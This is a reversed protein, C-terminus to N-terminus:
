NKKFEEPLSLLSTETKIPKCIGKNACIRLINFIRRKGGVAAAENAFFIQFVKQPRRVM